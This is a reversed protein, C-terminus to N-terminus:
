NLRIDIYAKQKLEALYADMRQKMKEAFLRQRAQDRVKAIPVDGTTREEVRIINLGAATQIVDSVKGPELSFAVRELASDLEGKRIVGLDGGERAAAGDSYQAAVEEFAAGNKLRALADAARTQARVVDQPSPDEPLRILIHRMRVSPSQDFEDMHVQYYETIEEESVIVSTRVERTLLRDVVMQEWVKTRFEELTLNERALAEAFMADSAFGNREKIREIATIVQDQDVAIGQKEAEQLQLRRLILVELIQRQTIQMQSARAEGELEKSIRQILPKGEKQLESLTIVEDNVVAVVRDILVGQGAAAVKGWVLLSLFIYKGYRRM